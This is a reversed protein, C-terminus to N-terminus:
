YKMIYMRRSEMENAILQRDEANVGNKELARDLLVLIEKFHEPSIHLHSHVKRLQENTYSAPGGMLSSIFKTQHDIQKGMDTNEFFDGVIDSDLVQGYFEMVINSVASFGGLKDFVTQGM